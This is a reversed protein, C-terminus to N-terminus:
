LLPTPRLSLPTPSIPFASVPVSSSQPRVPAAQVPDWLLALPRCHPRRSHTAMLGVSLLGTGRGWRTEADPSLVAFPSPTSGHPGPLVQVTPLGPPTKLPLTEPVLPTQPARLHIGSSIRGPQCSDCIAWAKESIPQLLLALPCSSPGWQGGPSTCDVCTCKPARGGVMPNDSTLRSVRSSMPRESICKPSSLSPPRHSQLHPPGEGWRRGGPAGPGGHAGTSTCQSRHCRREKSQFSWSPLPGDTSNRITVGPGAVAGAAPRVRPVMTPRHICSGKAPLQLHSLAAKRPSPFFAPLCPKTQLLPLCLTVADSSLKRAAPLISSKTWFGPFPESRNLCPLM